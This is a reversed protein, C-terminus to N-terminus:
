CNIVVWREVVYRYSEAAVEELGAEYENMTQAYGRAANETRFLVVLKKRTDGSSNISLEFVAYVDISDM